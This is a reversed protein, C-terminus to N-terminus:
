VFSKNQKNKVASFWVHLYTFLLTEKLVMYKTSM